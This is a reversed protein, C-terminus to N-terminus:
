EKDQPIEEPAIEEPSAEEVAAEDKKVYEEIFRVNLASMAERLDAVVRYKALLWKQDYKCVDPLM